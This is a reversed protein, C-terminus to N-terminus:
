GFSHFCMGPLCEYGLIWLLKRQVVWCSFAAQFTWWCIFSCITTYRYMPYKEVVLLQFLVHREFYNQLAFLICIGWRFLVNQAIANILTRSLALKEIMVFYILSSLNVTVQSYSSSSPPILIWCSPIRPSSMPLLLLLLVSPILIWCSPVKPIIYQSM